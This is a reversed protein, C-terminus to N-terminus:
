PIQHLRARPKLIRDELVCPCLVFFPWWSLFLQLLNLSSIYAPVVDSLAKDAMNLHKFKIGFTLPTVSTNDAPSPPLIMIVNANKSLDQGGKHFLLIPPLM